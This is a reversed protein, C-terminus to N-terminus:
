PRMEMVKSGFGLDKFGAGFSFAGFEFDKPGVGLQRESETVMYAVFFRFWIRVQM